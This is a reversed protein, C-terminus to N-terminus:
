SGLGLIARFFGWIRGLLSTDEENEGSTAEGPASPTPTANDEVQVTLTHTIVQAQNFDDLYHIYVQVPLAGPKMPIIEADLSATTGGDLVGVFVSGSTVELGEGGVEMTSVNVANRGINVLEVPLSLPLGVKGPEVSQYFDVQMQPKRNVLLNLVQAESSREGAANEYALTVPLNYVGAAAAGDLILRQEMSMSEGPALDQILQVNGAGLIAFPTLGAGGEGGLTVLLQLANSEGANTIHMQLTFAEGPSLSEPQTTYADLLV